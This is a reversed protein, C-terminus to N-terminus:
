GVAMAYENFIRLVAHYETEGFSFALLFHADIKIIFRIGYADSWWIWWLRLYSFASSVWFKNIIKIFNYVNM